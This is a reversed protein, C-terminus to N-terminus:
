WAARGGDVSLAAGTIFSADDSALFAVARAVEEPTAIRNVPHRSAFRPRQTEVGGLDEMEKELMPTDVSGPCVCNVCINQGAHDLAMARTLNIVGGKAACYAAAGMGGVLGFVSANNVIAGGRKMMHPIAHKSMLYTGKLNSNLVADWEDETTDPVNKNVYIIGANNFLIDLRDFQRLTESVCRQCDKASGVDGRIFIANEGAGLSELADRGRKEDRGMLVVKAGEGLFMRAASLGIGSAGGTIIAVKNEFRM